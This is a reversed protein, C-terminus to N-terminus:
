GVTFRYGMGPETHLHRPESPLRELKRRLNGIYVRLYNTEDRYGPGWVEALLSQQTVLRGQHRVLVELLRWETPTLHVDIDDISVRKDALDITFSDTTVM